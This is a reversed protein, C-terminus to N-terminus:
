SRINVKYMIDLHDCQLLHNYTDDLKVVALDGKAPEPPWMLTFRASGRQRAERGRLWSGDGLTIFQSTYVHNFMRLYFSILRVIQNITAYYM